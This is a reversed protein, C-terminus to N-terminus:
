RWGQHPLSSSKSTSPVRQGFCSRVIPRVNAKLLHGGHATGDMRGIILTEPSEDIQRFNM